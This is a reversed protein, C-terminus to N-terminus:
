ERAVTTGGNLRNRSADWKGIEGAVGGRIDVADLAESTQPLKLLPADPVLKSVANWGAKVTDALEPEYGWEEVVDAMGASTARDDDVILVTELHDGMAQIEHNEVTFAETM